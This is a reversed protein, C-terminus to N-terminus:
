VNDYQAISEFQFGKEFLQKTDIILDNSEKNEDDLAKKM